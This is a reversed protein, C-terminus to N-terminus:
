RQAARLDVKFYERIQSLPIVAVGLAEADKYVSLDSPELPEELPEGTEPDSYLPSGVVMFTTTQDLKEQVHVGMNELLQSLEKRSFQGSFSGVLIANRGGQPDFVPNLIVDGAVVPDFSDAVNYLKVEAMKAQVDTVEAWAKIRVDGPTGSQVRFRLGRVVRSQAGIDIWALSLKDSVSLVKGDPYGSYPAKQFQLQKSLEGIRTDLTLKDRDFARATNANENQSRRYNLDSDSLQQRLQAVTRELEENRTQATQTEDALQRELDAIRQDKEQTITGITKDRAAVEGELDKIRTKGQAIERQSAAHTARIKPLIKDVRKDSETIDTFIGRLNALEEDALKSDTRPNASEEDIWGLKRSLERAVNSAEDAQTKNFEADARARVTEEKANALDSSAVFAFGVGALFLVGVVIIWM